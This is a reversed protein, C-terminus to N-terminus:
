LPRNLLWLLCVISAPNDSDLDLYLVTNCCSIIFSTNCCRSGRTHCWFVLYLSRYWHSPVTLFSSVARRAFLLQERWTPSMATLKCDIMKRQSFLLLFLKTGPSNCIRSYYVQAELLLGFLVFCFVFVGREGLFCCCCCCFWWETGLLVAKM